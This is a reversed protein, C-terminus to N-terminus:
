AALRAIDAASKCRVALLRVGRHIHAQMLTVLEDDTLKSKKSALDERFRILVGFMQTYEGTLTYANFEMGDEDPARSRGIPGDELSMM